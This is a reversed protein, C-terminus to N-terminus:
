RIFYDDRMILDETHLLVDFVDFVDSLDYQNLVHFVDFVDFVDFSCTMTNM